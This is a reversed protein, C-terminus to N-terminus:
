DQEGPGPLQKLIPEFRLRAIQDLFAKMERVSESQGKLTYRKRGIPGRIDIRSVLGKPKGTSELKKGFWDQRELITLFESIQEDTM